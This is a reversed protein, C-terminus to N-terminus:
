RVRLCKENVSYECVKPLRELAKVHLVDKEVESIAKSSLQIGFRIVQLRNNSLPNSLGPNVFFKLV